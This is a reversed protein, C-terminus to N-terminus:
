RGFDGVSVLREGTFRGSRKLKGTDRIDSSYAFVRSGPLFLQRKSMDQGFNRVMTGSSTLPSSWPLSFFLFSLSLSTLPFSKSFSSNYSPGLHNCTYNAPHSTMCLNCVALTINARGGTLWGALWDAERLYPPTLTAREGLYNCGPQQTRPRGYVAM